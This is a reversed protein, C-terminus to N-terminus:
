FNNETARQESMYTYLVVWMSLALSSIPQQLPSPLAYVISVVPIWVGWTAFLSPLVTDRYYAATFFRGINHLRYNDNKWDYAWAVFPGVFLPNYLFQDVLVKKLVVSFTAEDGFWIAQSRYFYDVAIGMFCWLIGAFLINELNARTVKSKQFVLIRLLEPIIAGAIISSLAAYGYGWRIKLAALENLWNRMPPHFYYAVLVAAM